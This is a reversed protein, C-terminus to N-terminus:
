EINSVATFPQSISAAPTSMRANGAGPRTTSVEHRYRASSLDGSVTV